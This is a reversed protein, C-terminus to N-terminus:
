HFHHSIEKHNEHVSSIALPRKPTNVAKKHSFMMSRSVQSNSSSNHDFNIKSDEHTHNFRKIRQNTRNM